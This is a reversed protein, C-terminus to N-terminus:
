GQEKLIDALKTFFEAAERCAPEDFNWSGDAAWKSFDEMSIVFEMGGESIEAYMEAYNKTRLHVRKVPRKIEEYEIDISM